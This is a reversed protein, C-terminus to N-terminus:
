PKPRQPPLVQAPIVQDPDTNVNVMGVKWEGGPPQYAIVMVYVPHIDYLLIAYVRRVHASVDFVRLVDYGRVSGWEKLMPCMGAMQAKQTDSWPATWLTLAKDCAGAGLAELGDKVPRPLDVQGVLQAPAMLFLVTLLTRM